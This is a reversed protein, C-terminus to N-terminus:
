CTSRIARKRFRACRIWISATSNTVTNRSITPRVVRLIRSVGNDWNKFLDVWQLNSVSEGNGLNLDPPACESLRIPILWACRESSMRMREAAWAMEQHMYTEHRRHFAESFCALFFAGNEIASQIAKHWSQGPDIRDRDLWVDINRARLEGCLKHVVQEDNRMYSVFAHAPNM